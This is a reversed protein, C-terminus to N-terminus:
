HAYLSPATRVTYSLPPRLLADNAADSPLPNSHNCEANEYFDGPSNISPTRTTGNSFARSPVVIYVRKLSPLSHICAILIIFLQLYFM